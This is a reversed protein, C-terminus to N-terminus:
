RGIPLRVTASNNSTRTEPVYTCEPFDGPRPNVFVELRAVSGALRGINPTNMFVRGEFTVNRRPPIATSVCGRSDMGRMYRSTTLGAWYVSGDARRLRYSIAFGTARVNGFNSITLRVPVIILDRSIVQASGTGAISVSAVSLDAQAHASAAFLFTGFVLGVVRVLSQIRSM